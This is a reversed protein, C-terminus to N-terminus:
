RKTTPSKRLRPSAGEIRGMEIIHRRSQTEIKYVPRLPNTDRNSKFKVHQPYDIDHTYLKYDPINTVKSQLLKKPTTKEIDTTVM